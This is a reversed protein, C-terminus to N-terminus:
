NATFYKWDTWIDAGRRRQIAIKDAGFSFCILANYNEDRPFQQFCICANGDLGPPINTSGAGAIFMNYQPPNKLDFTGEPIKGYNDKQLCNSNLADLQSQIGSTVGDLYGLETATVASVAVKGNGDSVLARSADLNDTLISTAAGTVNDLSGPPGPPGIFDGNELKEQVEEAIDNASKAADNASKAAKNAAGAATNAAEVSPAVKNLAEMLATFENSSEIAESDINTPLIDICAIPTSITDDQSIIELEVQANGAVALAQNTFMARVQNGSVTCANYIITGDPKKVYINVTETTFEVNAGNATVTVLIGRGSDGQKLNFNLLPYPNILDITIPTIIQM